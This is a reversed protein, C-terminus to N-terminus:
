IVCNAHTIAGCAVHDTTNRRLRDPPLPVHRGICIKRWGVVLPCKQPQWTDTSSPTHKRWGQCEARLRRCESPSRQSLNERSLYPQKYNNVISVITDFTQPAVIHVCDRGAECDRARAWRRVCVHLTIALAGSACEPLLLHHSLGKLQAFLFVSRFSRGV